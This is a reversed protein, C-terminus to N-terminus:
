LSDIAEVSLTLGHRTMGGPATEAASLFIVDLIGVLRLVLRVLRGDTRPAAGDIVLSAPLPALRRAARMAVLAGSAPSDGVLEGRTSHRQRAVEDFLAPDLDDTEQAILLIGLLTFVREVADDLDLVRGLRQHNVRGVDMQRAAEPIGYLAGEVALEVHMEIFVAVKDPDVPM